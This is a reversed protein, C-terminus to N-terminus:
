REAGGEEGAPRGEEEARGLLESLTAGLQGFSANQAGRRAIVVFDMQDAAGRERAIARLRRKVRNRM